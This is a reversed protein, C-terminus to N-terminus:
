SHAEAVDKLIARAVQLEGGMKSPLAIPNNSHLTLHRIPLRWPRRAQKRRLFAFNAVVNENSLNPPVAVENALRRGRPVYVGQNRPPKSPSKKVANTDPDPSMFKQLTPHVSSTCCYSVSEPQSSASSSHRQQHRVDHRLQAEEM